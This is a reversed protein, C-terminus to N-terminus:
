IDKLRPLNWNYKISALRLGTTLVIVVATAVYLELEALLILYFAVIGVFSATVNMEKVFVIPIENVFTDRLIGGGVATLVGALVIVPFNLGFVTYAFTAGVVTFVGLGLADFKLFISFHKRMRKYLLFIAFATSITIVVYIPDSLANPLSSNFTIDRIVGGSVGSITALFVVGLIDAKHEIAKFAGTVAFAM